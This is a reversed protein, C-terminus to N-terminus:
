SATPGRSWCSAPRRASGPAQLRRRPHRAVPRRDRGGARRRDAWWRRRRLDAATAARPSRLRAGRRGAGILVRQRVELADDLDKLGPALPAWDDHGFYSTRAGAAIVLYDYALATGDDLRVSRGGVDVGTVEALLVVVNRKGHLAARIPYAVDTAALGAMAVQYLLPQFLHYNLRDIM